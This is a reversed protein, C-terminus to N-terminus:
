NTISLAWGRYVLKEVSLPTACAASGDYRFIKEFGKNCTVDAPLIGTNQQKLPPMPVEKIMSKATIDLEDAPTYPEPLTNDEYEATIVDGELVRLRHGSSEDTTTFFVTGEFVGTADDTETVTLDIGGADSDSWVDIHFNEIRDPNLNMDDDIVRIVGTGSTGYSEELWTIQGMNWQIIASGVFVEDESLEFLVLLTDNNESQLLGDTPGTGSTKPDTDNGENSDVFRGDGDADHLFGTLTIEGEFIGTDPGTEVLKYNELVHNTTSIIVPNERSNGITDIQNADLNNTSSTITIYVKDTWTYTQKDLKVHTSDSEANATIDFLIIGSISALGFLAIMLVIGSVM